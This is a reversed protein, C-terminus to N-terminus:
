QFFANSSKGAQDGDVYDQFSDTDSEPPMKLDSNNSGRMHRDADLRCFM